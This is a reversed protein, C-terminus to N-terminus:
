SGEGWTWDSDGKPTSRPSSARKRPKGKRRLLEIPSIQDAPPILEDLVGLLDLARLLRIFNSLQASEGNEIRAVTRTSLGGETAADSQTLGLSIRRQALREGVEALVTTDTLSNEIKM